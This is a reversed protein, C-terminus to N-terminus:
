RGDDSWHPPDKVLKIVGFSRGVEHLIPNMHDCPADIAHVVGDFDTVRLAGKWAINMDIARRQTHRSVLAAPFKIAYGKMMASAAGRAAALDGGHRWDIDVGAMPVPATPAQEGSAIRCCWHMLYAREPPRYTAAVSVTAGGRKIASIFANVRDRFEPLLDGVSASTPFRACWQAGSPEPM